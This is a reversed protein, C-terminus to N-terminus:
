LSSCPLFTFVKSLPLSFQFQSFIQLLLAHHHQTIPLLVIPSIIKQESSFRICMYFFFIMFKMCLSSSQMPHQWEPFSIRLDTHLAGHFYNLPLWVPHQFSSAFSNFLLFSFHVSFFLYISFLTLNLKTTKTKYERSASFLLCVHCFSCCLPRSKHLMQVILFWM